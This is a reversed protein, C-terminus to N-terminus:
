IILFSKRIAQLDSFIIRTSFGIFGFEYDEILEEKGLTHTLSVGSVLVVSLYSNLSALINIIFGFLDFGHM